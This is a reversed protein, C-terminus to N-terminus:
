ALAVVRRVLSRYPAWHKIAPLRDTNNYTYSGRWWLGHGPPVDDIQIWENKYSVKLAPKTAGCWITSRWYDIHRPTPQARRLIPVYVSHRPESHYTGAPPELIKNVDKKIEATVVSLEGLLDSAGRYLKDIEEKDKEVDVYWAAESRPRYPIGLRECKATVIANANEGIIALLGHIDVGTEVLVIGEDPNLMRGDIDESSTRFVDGPWAEGFDGM